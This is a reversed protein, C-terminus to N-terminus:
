WVLSRARHGLSVKRLKRRLFCIDEKLGSVHFGMMDGKTLFKSESNVQNQVLSRSTFSEM